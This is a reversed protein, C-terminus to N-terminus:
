INKGYNKTKKHCKECLTKGNEIDGFPTYIMVAEYLDILPLNQKVEQLLEPFPRKHHHAQLNGGGKDGCEQCTFDDRIFISQRWSKYKDCQRIQRNLSTIGGKWHWHNKGRLKGKTEESLKKGKLSISNALGIKKKSKESHHKGLMYKNGLKSIGIKQKTKESLKKGINAIGIKNKTGLSLHKGLMSKYGIHGKKFSTSSKAM